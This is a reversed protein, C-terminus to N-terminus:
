NQRCDLHTVPLAWCRTLDLLDACLQMAAGPDPAAPRAGSPPRGPQPAHAPRAPAPPVRPCRQLALLLVQRACDVRYGIGTECAM